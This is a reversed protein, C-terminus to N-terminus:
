EDEQDPATDAEQDPATDASPGNIGPTGAVAPDILGPAVSPYIFDVGEVGGRAPQEVRNPPEATGLDLGQQDASLRARVQDRTMRVGGIVVEGNQALEQRAGESLEFTHQAAQATGATGAGLQLRLRDNEARLADREAAIQEKTEAM